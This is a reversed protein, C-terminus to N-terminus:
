EPHGSDFLFILKIKYKRLLDLCHVCHWEWHFEPQDSQPQEQNMRSEISKMSAMKMWHYLFVGSDVAIVQNSLNSFRYTNTSEHSHVFTSLSRVGMHSNSYVNCM